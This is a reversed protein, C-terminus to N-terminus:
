RCPLFYCMRILHRDLTVPNCQLRRCIAAKVADIQRKTEDFKAKAESNDIRIAMRFDQINIAM